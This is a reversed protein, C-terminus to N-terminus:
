VDLVVQWGLSFLTGRQSQSGRWVKIHFKKKEGKSGGEAVCVGDTLLLACLV